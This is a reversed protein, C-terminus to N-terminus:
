VDLGLQGERLRAVFDRSLRRLSQFAVSRPAADLDLPVDAVAVRRGGGGHWRVYHRVEASADDELVARVRARVADLVQQITPVVTRVAATPVGNQDFMGGESVFDNQMDVVVVATRECDRLLEGGRTSVAVELAM